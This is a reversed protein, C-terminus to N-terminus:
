FNTVVCLSACFAVESGVLERELYLMRILLLESHRLLTDLVPRQEVPSVM